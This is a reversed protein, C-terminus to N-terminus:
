KMEQRRLVFANSISLKSFVEWVVELYVKISLGKRPFSDAQNWKDILL